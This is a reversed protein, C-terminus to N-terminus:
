KQVINRIKRIIEIGVRTRRGLRRRGLVDNRRRNNDAVASMSAINDTIRDAEGRREGVALIGRENKVARTNGVGRKSGADKQLENRGGRNRRRNGLIRVGDLHSVIANSGLDIRFM